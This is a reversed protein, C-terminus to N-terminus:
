CGIKEFFLLMDSGFVLKKLHLAAELPVVFASNIDPVHWRRSHGWSLVTCSGPFPLSQKPPYSLVVLSASYLVQSSHHAHWPIRQQNDWFTSEVHHARCLGRWIICLLEQFSCIGKSLNYISLLTWLIKDQVCVWSSYQQSQFLVSSNERFLPWQLSNMPSIPFSAGYVTVADPWVWPDQLLRRRQTQSFAKGRFSNWHFSYPWFTM